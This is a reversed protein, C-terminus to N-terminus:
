VNHQMWVNPEWYSGINGRVSLPALGRPFVYEGDGPFTMHTWTEWDSTPAEIHLSKSEPRLITAGLWAHVRMWPDFPLGDGRVWRAYHEIPILPYQDKKSPRVPAVLPALHLARACAAMAQILLRSLGRGQLDTAVEAALASLSTPPRPDDLARIGMADFGRPLDELSYDWHFPITRGRAVIRQTNRDRLLVQLDPYRLVLSAFIGPAHNGHSNYEPWVDVFLLKAAEWLDPREEATWLELSSGRPLFDVNVKTMM